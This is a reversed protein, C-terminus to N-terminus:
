NESAVENLMKQLQKFKEPDAAKLAEMAERNSRIFTTAAKDLTAMEKRRKSSETDLRRIKNMDPFKFKFRPIDSLIKEIEAEAMEMKKGTGTIRVWAKSRTISAFAHNRNGIGEVYDYLADFGLVYVVYSENGKARRVTSLTVKGEESFALTDDIIGPITSAISYNVLRRQLGTLYEKSKSTDLSIAVIQRPLVNEERIDKRISDAVWDLESGRDQFSFTTVLNQKNYMQHIRNPSNIDPRFIVLDKGKQLEGNEIEYGLAEWYRRDELMQVPGGIPNHLGLGLAHALMLVELPCRYSRHLVIDKEISGPYDEGQLSVLPSGDKSYGFLDEPKPIELSSLSQLEDYAWYIRRDASCLLKYLILFFEKPFDQAEDVLIFDYEPSIPRQLANVCCAQFPDEYGRVSDFTLPSVGQRACLDSYVGSRGRGGWAHRVHLMDWNPDTGCHARYTKSILERVQNYLSQTNFTFLIKKDPEKIHIHAAKMALLVTKGTGALGRIRQPGPAIQLAVAEQEDDLSAVQRDLEKIAAGLTTIDKRPVNLPKHLTTAGQIVARTLTFEEDSLQQALPRRLIHIDGGKWLVHVDEPLPDFKEEFDSRTIFPLALLGLPRLFSRLERRELFKSELKIVLDELELVPPDCHIANIVWIDRDVLDIEELPYPIIKVVLPQNTKTFLTFDPIVGTNTIVAPHKYYCIGEDSNFAEKLRREVMQGAEDQAYSPHTIVFKLM